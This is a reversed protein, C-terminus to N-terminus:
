VHARGIKSKDKCREEAEIAIESGREKEGPEGWIKSRGREEWPWAQQMQLTCLVNGCGEM